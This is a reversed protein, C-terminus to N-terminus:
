SVKAGFSCLYYESGDLTEMKYTRHCTTSHMHPMGSFDSYASKHNYLHYDGGNLHRIYGERQPVPVKSHDIFSFKITPIVNIIKEVFFPIM